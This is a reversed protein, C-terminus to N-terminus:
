EQEDDVRRNFRNMVTMPGHELWCEVADAATEVAENVDVLEQGAFRTLVFNVPNGLPKGIGVRLRAFDDFGVREIM